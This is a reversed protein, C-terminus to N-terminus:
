DWLMTLFLTSLVATAVSSYLNLIYKAPLILPIYQGRLLLYSPSLLIPFLEWRELKPSQISQPMILESPFILLIFLNMLLEVNTIGLLHHSTFTCNTHLHSLWFCWKSIMLIYSFGQVPILQCLFACSYSSVSLSFLWCQPLPLLFFAWRPLIHQLNELSVPGKSDLNPSIRLPPLAFTSLHFPSLSPIRSFRLEENIFHGTLSDSALPLCLRLFLELDTSHVLQNKLWKVYITKRQTSKIQLEICWVNSCM